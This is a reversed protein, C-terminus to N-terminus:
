PQKSENDFTKQIGDELATFQFHPLVSRLRSPDFGHDAKTKTRPNVTFNVKKRCVKELASIVDRFTHSQGSVLNLVGEHPTDLLEVVLRCADEVYLFERLESGDGWLTIPQSKFHSRIFGVPGYSNTTDGPGYILPPRIILLSSGAAHAANELIRESAFKAIGYLSVPNVTTSETIATNSTEEGYVAASSFFLIRQPKACEIARALSLAIQTNTELSTYADGAQRKVGSLIILRSECSLHESLSKWSDQASLNLSTAGCGSLRIHPCSDQALRTLHRGIFGDWGAIFIPASETDPPTIQHNEPAPITM